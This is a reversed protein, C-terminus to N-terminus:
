VGGIFISRSGLSTIFWAFIWGHSILGDPGRVSFSSLTLRSARRTGNRLRWRFKPRCSCIPGADRLPLASKPQQSTKTIVAVTTSPAIAAIPRSILHAVGVDYPAPVYWQPFNEDCRIHRRKCTKCGNRSKTHSKRPPGGGPGAM